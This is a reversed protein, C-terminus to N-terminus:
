SNRPPISGSHVAAPGCTTIGAAQQAAFVRSADMQVAAAATHLKTTPAHSALLRAVSATDISEAQVASAYALVAPNGHALARADSALRGLVIASEAVIRASAGGHHGVRATAQERSLVALKLEAQQCATALRQSVANTTMHSHGGCGALALMALVVALIGGAAKPAAPPKQAPPPTDM